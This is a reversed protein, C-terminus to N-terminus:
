REHLSEDANRMLPDLFYGAVSRRGTKVDATVTMGPTLAVWQGNVKFRNDALRVHATFALGQPKDQVADNSVQVVTGKLYGFRTYPFADIKVVAEQGPKVFGVDKNEIAIEAELWEDPVIEMLSQATTVVGGVTHVALQQVTGGVPASLSMLGRRTTAKTEEDRDQEFQQNAKDLAELQERRFQSALGAIEAKQAVISAALEDAHSMKAALEHEQDLATQERELYEHKAVFKDTALARYDNAQERALPATATLRDIDHRTEQLEAQRKALEAELQALKDRYERFIGSAFTQSASM